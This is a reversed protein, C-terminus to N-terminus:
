GRRITGPTKGLRARCLRTFHAQDTFGAELAIFAIPLDTSRLLSVAHDLRRDIVYSYPTKGTALRFARTLQTQSLGAAASIDLISIDTTFYAEIYEIARNLRADPRIRAEKLLAPITWGTAAVELALLRIATDAFLRGQATGPTVERSLLRILNGLVPRQAFNAPLLHGRRFADTAIEPAYTHFLADDFEVMLSRQVPGHNRWALHLSTGAPILCIDDPNTPEENNVGDMRTLHAASGDLTMVMGHRDTRVFQVDASGEDLLLVRLGPFETSEVRIAHDRMHYDRITAYKKQM